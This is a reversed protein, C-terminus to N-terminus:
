RGQGGQGQREPKPAKELEEISLFGDKNSDIKAFDESLPGKAEAKSIKGDKNVDMQTFMTTISPRDGQGNKREKNTESKATATTTATKSSSCAMFIIVSLSAVLKKM